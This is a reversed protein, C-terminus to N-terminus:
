LSSRTCVTNARRFLVSVDTLLSRCKRLNSATRTVPARSISLPSVLLNLDHSVRKLYITGVSRQATAISFRHFFHMLHRPSPLSPRPLLPPLYLDIAIITDKPSAVRNEALTIEANRLCSSQFFFQPSKNKLHVTDIHVHRAATDPLIM